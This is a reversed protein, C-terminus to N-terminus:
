LPTPGRDGLPRRRGGLRRRRGTRGCSTSRGSSRRSRASPRSATSSAADARRRPGDLEIEDGAVGPLEVVEIRRAAVAWLSGERRVAEARYPPALEREVAGRAARRRRATRSSSRGDRFRSSTSGPRGRREPAEVTRVVDWERPATCRRPDRRRGVAPRPPELREDTLPSAAGERALACTRAARAAPLLSVRRQPAGDRRRPEDRRKERYRKVQRELKDVLPRDVRPM